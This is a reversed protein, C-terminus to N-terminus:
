SRRTRARAKRSARSSRIRGRTPAAPWECRAAATRCGVRGARTRPGRRCRAGGRRDHSRRLMACFANRRRLRAPYQTAFHRLLVNLDHPAGELGEVGAIDICEDAQGSGVALPPGEARLEFAHDVLSVLADPAKDAVHVVIPLAKSDIRDIEVVAVLPNRDNPADPSQASAAAHLDVRVRAEHESQAASSDTADGAVAIRVRGQRIESLAALGIDCSFTSTM